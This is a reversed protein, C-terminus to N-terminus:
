SIGYVGSPEAALTGGAVSPGVNTEVEGSLTVSHIASNSDPTAVVPETASEVVIEPGLLCAANMHNTIGIGTIPVGSLTATAGWPTAETATSTVSEVECGFVEKLPGHTTCGTPEFKKVTGVDGPHLILEVHATTCSIGGAEGSEFSVPGTFKVTKTATIPAGGETWEAASAMAPVALLASVVAALLLAKKLM